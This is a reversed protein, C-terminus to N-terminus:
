AVHCISEPKHNAWVLTFPYRTIKREASRKDEAGDEGDGEWKRVLDECCFELFSEACVMALKKEERFSQPLISLKQWSKKKKTAIAAAAAARAAVEEAPQTDAAAVHLKRCLDNGKLWRAATALDTM